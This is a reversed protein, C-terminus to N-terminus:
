DPAGGETDPSEGVIAPKFVDEAVSRANNIDSWDVSGGAGEADEYAQVLIGSARVAAILQAETYGRGEHTLVFAM